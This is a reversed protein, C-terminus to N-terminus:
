INGLFIHWFMYGACAKSFPLPVHRRSRGGEGGRNRRGQFMDDDDIVDNTGYLNMYFDSRVCAEKGQYTVTHPIQPFEM